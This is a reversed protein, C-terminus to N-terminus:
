SRSRPRSVPADRDTKCSRAAVIEHNRTDRTLVVWVQCGLGHYWFERHQGAPNDRLYVYETFRELADLADPDPRVPDADGLYTFERVDRLGCHPCPIRM